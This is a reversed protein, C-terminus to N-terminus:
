VSSVVLLRCHYFQNVGDSAYQSVSRGVGDICSIACEFGSGGALIHGWHGMHAPQRSSEAAGIDHMLTNCTCHLAQTSLNM